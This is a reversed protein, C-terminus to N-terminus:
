QIVQTFVGFVRGTCKLVNGTCKLLLKKLFDQFSNCILLFSLSNFTSQILLVGHVCGFQVFDLGTSYMTWNAQDLQHFAISYGVDCLLLFVNFASMAILSIIGKRINRSSIDSSAPDSNKLHHITLVTFTGGIFSLLCSIFIHAYFLPVGIKDHYTENMPVVADTLRWYGLPKQLYALLPLSGWFLFSLATVVSFVANRKRASSLPRAVSMYRAVGLVVLVNMEFAALYLLFSNAHATWPLSTTPDMKFYYDLDDSLLKPLLVLPFYLSKFQDISSVLLFLIRALTKTQKSHYAIIFPVLFIGIILCFVLFTAFFYNLFVDWGNGERYVETWNYHKVAVQGFIAM